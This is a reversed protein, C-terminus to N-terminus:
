FDGILYFVGGGGGWKSGMGAGKGLRQNGLFRSSESERGKKEKIVHLWKHGEVNCIGNFFAKKRLSLKRRNKVGGTTFLERKL